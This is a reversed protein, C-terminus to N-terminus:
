ISHALGHHVISGIACFDDSFNPDTLNTMCKDPNKEPNKEPKSGSLRQIFAHLTM